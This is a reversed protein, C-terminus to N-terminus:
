VVEEVVKEADRVRIRGSTLLPLLEDRVSVLALNEREAALARGWLGSMLVGVRAVEDAPPILVPEDLHRRQIHGMTTAKDAAIAKFEALKAHLAGAVLWLPRGHVPVVKFIHQNIVAEDRFWRAVTLSGSWAFLLDGPRALHYESVDIDNRVTSPGIGSNLEAIRIVVRGTGTAGKTFAKGNVFTALSSLPVWEGEATAECWLASTLDELMCVIRGNAFIKDDLAGLVAAIAGQEGLPPVSMPVASLITTNLNLMTAGVAHRKIWQRSASTGLLYSIFRADYRDNTGIRVRLCGTGCLWGDNTPRVLARREVDGRRSYVIDGPQLAYKSLRAMDAVSIRAIGNEVIVNDGINQPMVSPIGDEVYDSAHLQSGFPGTQIGGGTSECIAGLTTREWSAM